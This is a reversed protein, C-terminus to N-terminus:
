CGMVIDIVALKYQQVGYKMNDNNGLYWIACLLGQSRTM